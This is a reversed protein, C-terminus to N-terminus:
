NGNEVFEILKQNSKFNIKFEKDKIKELDLLKLNFFDILKKRLYIDEALGKEFKEISLPSVGILKSLEEISLGKKIRELRVIKRLDGEKIEIKEEKKKDLKVHNPELCDNCVFKLTIGDIVLNKEENLKNLGCEDCEFTLTM